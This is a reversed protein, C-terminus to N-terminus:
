FLLNNKQHNLQMLPLFVNYNFVDVIIDKELYFLM